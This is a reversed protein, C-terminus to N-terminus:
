FKGKLIYKVVNNIDNEMEPLNKPMRDIEALVDEEPIGKELGCDIKEFYTSVEPIDLYFGVFPIVGLAVCQKVYISTGQYKFDEQFLVGNRDLDFGMVGRTHTRNFSICDTKDTEVELVPNHVGFRMNYTDFGFMTLGIGFKNMLDIYKKFVKKTKVAINDEIIFLYTADVSRAYTLMKNKSVTDYEGEEPTYVYLEEHKGLKFDFVTRVDVEDRTHLIGYVVKDM